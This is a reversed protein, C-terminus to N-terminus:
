LVFKLDVLTIVFFHWFWRGHLVAMRTFVVEDKSSFSFPTQELGDRSDCTVVEFTFLDVIMVVVLTVM